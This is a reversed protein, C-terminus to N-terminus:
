FDNYELKKSVPAIVLWFVMYMYLHTKTEINFIYLM